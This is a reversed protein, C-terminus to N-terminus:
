GGTAMADASKDFRIKLNISLPACTSLVLVERTPMKSAWATTNNDHDAAAANACVVPMAPTTLSVVPATSGPTM